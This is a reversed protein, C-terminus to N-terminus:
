VLHSENAASSTAGAAGSPADEGQSGVGKAIDTSTGAHLNAADQAGQLNGQMTNQLAGKAASTSQNAQNLMGGAVSGAVADGGINAGAEGSGEASGASGSNGSALDGAAKLDAAHKLIDSVGSGGSPISTSSAM